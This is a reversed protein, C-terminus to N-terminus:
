QEERHCDCICKADCFKCTSPEKDGALGKRAQCYAHQGHRCSTSLYVHIDSKFTEVKPRLEALIRDLEGDLDLRRYVEQIWM